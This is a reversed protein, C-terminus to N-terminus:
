MRGYFHQNVEKEFDEKLAERWKKLLRLEKMGLVKIDKCCELIELTVYHYMKQFTVLIKLSLLVKLQRKTSKLERSMLKLKM